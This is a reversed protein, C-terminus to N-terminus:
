FIFSIIAVAIIVGVFLAILHLLRSFIRDMAQLFDRDHSSM